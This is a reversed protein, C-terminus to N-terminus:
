GRPGRRYLTPIWRVLHAPYGFAHWVWSQATATDEETHLVFGDDTFEITGAHVTTDTVCDIFGRQFSQYEGRSTFPDILAAWQLGESSAVSLGVANRGGTGQGTPENSITYGIVLGPAFPLGSVTQTAGQNQGPTLRGTQNDENDWAVFMGGNNLADPDIDFDTLGTGTPFAKLDGAALFPGIFNAAQAVVTSPQDYYIDNVYQASASTPFCLASLGAAAWGNPNTGPYAAGGFWNSSLDNDGRVPGFWCGHLLMAGAKFGLAVTNQGGVYGGIDTAEMLAAYVVKYGGATVNTWNLTFGGADFSTVDARYRLTGSSSTDLCNIAHNDTNQNDGAPVVCSGNQVITGADDWKPSAMGRFMAVANTTVISDETLWNTGWFFVARPTGGLGTIAQSGTSGPVTITGVKWTSAAATPAVVAVSEQGFAGAVGAGSKTATAGGSEELVFGDASEELELLSTGDEELVIYDAV